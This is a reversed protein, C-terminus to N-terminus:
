ERKNAVTVPKPQMCRVFLHLEEVNNIVVVFDNTLLLPTHHVSQPQFVTCDVAKHEIAVPVQQKLLARWLICALGGFRAFGSGKFGVVYSLSKLREVVMNNHLKWFIHAPLLDSGQLPIETDCLMQLGTFFVSLHLLCKNDV